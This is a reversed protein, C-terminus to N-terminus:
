HYDLYYNIHTQKFPYKKWIERASDKFLNGVLKKNDKDKYSPQALLNGNGYVLVCQGEIRWDIVKITCCCNKQLYKMRESIIEPAIYEVEYLDKGRGTPMLSFLYLKNINYTNCIQIIKSLDDFNKKMVTMILGTPINLKKTLELCKILKRYCGKKMTVSDHNEESGYISFRINDILPKIQLLRDETLLIGNTSFTISLGKTQMYKLIDIIDKRILPEGGTVCIKKLKEKSLEDIIKKIEKFSSENNSLTECCHACRLVCKRTVVFGINIFFDVSNKDYSYSDM